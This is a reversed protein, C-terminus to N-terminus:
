FDRYYDAALAGPVGALAWVSGKASPPWLAGAVGEWRVGFAMLVSPIAGGQSCVVAPGGGPPAALLREVAALGAQPDASFRQEGLEPLPRVPLGLRDSLPALTERCRVPEATLLEAPGFLPLVEALRRAQARGARDLPRLADPGDFDSRDGASAHRLLLVAPGRPVDPRVLDDLVARDHDHTVRATAEPVPLWCLEDVEDNPEFAGGVVEMLWYDVEKAVRRGDRARVHYRTRVSRRGVRVVLGTEERVERV